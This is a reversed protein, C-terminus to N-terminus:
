STNRGFIRVLPSTRVSGGITARARVRMGRRGDPILDAGSAAFYWSDTSPPYQTLAEWAVLTAGAGAGDVVELQASSVDAAAVVQGNLKPTVVITDTPTAASRDMSALEIDFTYVNAITSIYGVYKEDPCQIEYTTTSDPNTGWASAVTAVKTSGVFDIILRAQGRVGAPSDNSCVVYLGNYADNIDSATAALTIATAAGAQATDAHVVLLRRPYLVLPTTKAGTSAVKIALTQCDTETHILDLFCMGSATALETAENTADAFTGGDQSLESDPASPSILGGDADLLPFTIRNRANYITFPHADGAAAAM